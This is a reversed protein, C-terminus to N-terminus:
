SRIFNHIPYFAAAFISKGVAFTTKGDVKGSHLKILIIKCGHSRSKGFCRGADCIEINKQKCSCNDNILDYFKKAHAMENKAHTKFITKLYAYGEQEAAKALFQYKAGDQCEGAFVRALNQKTKSNDFKCM